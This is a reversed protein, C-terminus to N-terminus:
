KAKLSKQWYRQVQENDTNRKKEYPSALWQLPSAVKVIKVNWLSLELWQNQTKGLMQKVEGCFIELKLFADESLSTETYNALEANRFNQLAGEICSSTWDSYVSVM